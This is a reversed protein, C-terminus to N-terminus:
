ILYSAGHHSDITSTSSDGGNLAANLSHDGKKEEQRVDTLLSQYFCSWFGCVRRSCLAWHNRQVLKGQVSCLATTRHKHHHLQVRAPCSCM